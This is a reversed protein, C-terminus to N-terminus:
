CINKIKSFLFKCYPVIDSIDQIERSNYDNRNSDYINCVLASMYDLLSLILDRIFRKIRVSASAKHRFWLAANLLLQQQERVSVFAITQGSGSNRIKVNRTRVIVNREYGARLLWFKHLRLRDGEIIEVYM